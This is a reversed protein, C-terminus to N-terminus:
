PIRVRQTKCVLEIWDKDSIAYQWGSAFHVHYAMHEIGDADYVKIKDMSYGIINDINIWMSAGTLIDHIVM